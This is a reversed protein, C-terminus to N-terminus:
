RSGIPAPVPLRATVRFGGGARPGATLDGHLLEVRERMGAIGYGGDVAACGRGEDIVEILLDDDRYDVSVRCETVGAHRVVNTLAEQIIRFASLDIDAPIQRREGGWRVDVRIGAGSTAAVLREVDALGPAPDLPAADSGPEARRLAGVARRLGALTERSTAEIANLANRAEDPQTDMVRSGVGAQIAIIGISHAVIDHLERAIRLREATVAATAAQARLAGAHRRRERISGGIMWATAVALLDFTISRTFTDSGRTYFTSSGIQALLALVAVPISVRRARSAATVAVGVDLVLIQAIGVAWGSVIAVTAVSGVLMVAMSPAPWRRLLALPLVMFVAPLVVQLSTLQKLNGWVTVYALLLLAVTVWWAVTAWALPRRRPTPTSRITAAM